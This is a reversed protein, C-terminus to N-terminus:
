LKVMAIDCPILFPRNRKSRASVRWLHPCFAHVSDLTAILVRAVNMSGMRYLDVAAAHLPHPPPSTHYHNFTSLCWVSTTPGRGSIKLFRLKLVSTRVYMLSYNICNPCQLNSCRSELHPSGLVAVLPKVMVIRILKPGLHTWAILCKTDGNNAWSAIRHAYM